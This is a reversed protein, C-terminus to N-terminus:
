RYPRRRSSAAERRQRARVGDWGDPEVHAVLVGDREEVPYRSMGQLALRVPAGTSRDFTWAHNPCQFVRGRDEIEGGIHPCVGALLRWEDGVRTLFYTAALIELRAPLRDFDAARGLEVAYTASEVDSV